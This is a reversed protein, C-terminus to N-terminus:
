TSSLLLRIYAVCYRLPISEVISTNHAVVFVFKIELELIRRQLCKLLIKMTLGHMNDLWEIIIGVLASIYFKYMLFVLVAGVHKPGLVMM